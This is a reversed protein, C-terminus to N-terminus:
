SCLQFAASFPQALISRPRSKGLVRLSARKAFQTLESSIQFNRLSPGYWQSRVRHPQMIVFEVQLSEFVAALLKKPFERMHFERHECTQVLVQLSSYDNCPITLLANLALAVPLFLGLCGLPAMWSKLHGSGTHTRFGDLMARLENGSM